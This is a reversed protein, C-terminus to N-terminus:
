LDFLLSFSDDQNIIYSFRYTLNDTVILLKESNQLPNTFLKNATKATCQTMKELM